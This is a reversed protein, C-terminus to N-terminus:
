SVGQIQSATLINQKRRPPWALVVISVLFLFMAIFITEEGQWSQLLREIAPGYQHVTLLNVVDNYYIGASAGSFAAFALILAIFGLLARVLHRAGLHRRGLVVFVAALLALIYTFMTGLRMLLAPWSSYGFFQELETALQQSPWGASIFYPVKLGVAIGLLIALFMLISGIGSCLFAFPHFSERIVVTTPKEPAPQQQAEVAPTLPIEHVPEKKQEAAEYEPVPTKVFHAKEGLEEKNHWMLLPLGYCDEFQGTLIMIVDIIQGVLFLGGTFFWLIGTGIKGVYFRHLGFFGFFGGASFLLAWFRKFVSIGSEVHPIKIHPPKPSVKASSPKPADGVIVRAPIVMVVIFAIAPFIILFLSIAFQESNLNACGMYISSAVIVLVCAVMIAPKILYRYWGTFRSRCAGIFFFVSLILGNVGATVGLAFDNPVYKMSGSIVFFLGFGFSILSAILWTLRLSKPVEGSALSNHLQIKKDSKHKDFINKESQGFASIAQVALSTGAMVAGIMIPSHLFIKGSIAGLIGAWFAIGLSLRKRRDPLSMRRWDVLLMPLFMSIFTSKSQEFHFILSTFGVIVAVSLSTIIKEIWRSEHEHKTFHRQQILLITVTCINILMLIYLAILPSVHKVQLFSAGVSVILASIFALFYRQNPQIPDTLGPIRAKKAGLINDVKSDVRDAVKRGITDIRGFVDQANESSRNGADRQAPTDTKPKQTKEDINAKAAVQQAVISLEEPSFHSVSNRINEQGFLDEVMEQVSQYREDPDKALAKKIVGAFPEEINKLEPEASMHKMLIEAPSEGAFPVEGTLMEYLLVGLAYIDIGFNYKGAGIEPAMYHVTGVTITHGSHRTAGIAKTLGYDGVKVYGNEYFINGPKLDRHVIGCEHLYSLGKAIERLFFAAKQKGLGGPSETLLTRLSPGSVYEMIVFPQGRDNYKVDFITVLHPSKLNMCQTIGRLEIQEYNQVAKIAVERGSDSLAYYVEGFGGRGAARQITYGELPHDGHQYRYRQM